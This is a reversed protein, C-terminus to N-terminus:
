GGNAIKEADKDAKVLAARCDAADKRTKANPADPDTGDMAYQTIAANADGNDARWQELLDAPETDATFYSDAKTFATQKMDLGLIAKQYWATFQPTGVVSEGQALFDRFDADEKTLIAAAKKRADAASVKKPTSSTAAAAPKKSANTHAPKVTASKSPSRSPTTSSTSATHTKAATSKADAKDTKGDGVAAGIAALVVLLGVIGLCGFGVIKGPSPKKAPQRPSPVAWEPRQQEVNGGPQVPQTLLFRILPLPSRPSRIVSNHGSRTTRTHWLARGPM